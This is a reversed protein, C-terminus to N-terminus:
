AKSMKARLESWKKMHNKGKLECGRGWYGLTM